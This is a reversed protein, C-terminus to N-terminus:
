RNNFFNGVQQGSALFQQLVDQGIAEEKQQETDKRRRGLLKDIDVIGREFGTRLDRESQDFGVRRRTLGTMFDDKEQGMQTGALAALRRIDENRQSFGTGTVDQALGLGSRQRGLADTRAQQEAGLEGTERQGVGSGFLGRSQQNEGLQRQEIPAQRAAAQEQAALDGFRLEFDRQSFGQETALRRLQREEDESLLSKRQEFRQLYTQEDQDLFGRTTGLDGLATAFDQELRRRSIGSDDELDSLVEDFYPNFEDQALKRAKDFDFPDGVVGSDLLQQAYDDVMKQVQQMTPVDISPSGGGIINKRANGLDRNIIDPAADQYISVERDNADRGLYQRFFQNLQQRSLRAM